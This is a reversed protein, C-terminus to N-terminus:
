ELAGSSSRFVILYRGSTSGRLLGGRGSWQAFATPAHGATTLNTYGYKSPWTISINVVLIVSYPISSPPIPYLVLYLLVTTSSLTTHSIRSTHPPAYYWCRLVLLRVLLAIRSSYLSEGVESHRKRGRM